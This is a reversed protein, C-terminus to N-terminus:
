HLTCCFCKSESRDDVAKKAKRRCNGLANQICAATYIRCKPCEEKIKGASMKGAIDPDTVLKELEIKDEDLAGKWSCCLRAGDDDAGKEKYKSDIRKLRLLMSETLSTDVVM